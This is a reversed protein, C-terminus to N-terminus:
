DNLLMLYNTFINQTKLSYNAYALFINEIMTGKTKNKGMSDGAVSKVM